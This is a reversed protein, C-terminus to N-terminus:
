YKQQLLHPWSINVWHLPCFGTFVPSFRLQPSYVTGLLSMFVCTWPPMVEGLIQDDSFVKWTDHTHIGLSMIQASEADGPLTSLSPCYLTRETPSGMCGREQAPQLVKPHKRSLPSKETKELWSELLRPNWSEYAAWHMLKLFRELHPQMQDKSYTHELKM